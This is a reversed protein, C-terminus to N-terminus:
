VDSNNQSFWSIDRDVVAHIILVAPFSFITNYTVIEFWISAMM